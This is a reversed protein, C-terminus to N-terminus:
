GSAAALRVLSAEIRWAWARAGQVRALALARALQRRVEEVTAAGSDWEREAQRRLVEPAAWGAAGTEARRLALTGLGESTFTARHDAAVAGPCHGAVARRGTDDGEALLAACDGAWAAWHAQPPSEALRALQEVLAQAREQAGAWIALPLNVGGLVQARIHLPAAQAQM